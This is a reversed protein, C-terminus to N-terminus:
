RARAAQRNRRAPHARGPASCCTVGTCCAQRARSQSCLRAVCGPGAQRDALGCGLARGVHLATASRTAAGLVQVLAASLASQASCAAPAQAADGACGLRVLARVDGQGVQAAPAPLPGRLAQDQALSTCRCRPLGAWGGLVPRESIASINTQDLGAHRCGRGWSCHQPPAPMTGSGRSILFAACMDSCARQLMSSGGCLWAFWSLRGLRWLANAQVTEAQARADGPPVLTSRSHATCDGANQRRSHSLEPVANPGVTHPAQQKWCCPMHLTVSTPQPM